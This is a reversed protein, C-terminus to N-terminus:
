VDLNLDEINETPSPYYNINNYNYWYNGSGVPLTSPYQYKLPEFMMKMVLDYGDQASKQTQQSVPAGLIPAITLALNTRVASVAWIPINSEDTITSDDPSSTLPYGLQLGTASWEAMMSDLRELASQLMEPSFDFEYNGLGLEEFAGKILDKKRYGM